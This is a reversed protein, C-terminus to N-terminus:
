SGAMTEQNTRGHGNTAASQSAVISRATRTATETTFLFTAASGIIASIVGVRLDDLSLVALLVLGGVVVLSATGYTFLAKITDIKTPTM